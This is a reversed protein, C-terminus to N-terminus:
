SAPISRPRNSDGPMAASTIGEQGRYRQAFLSVRRFEEQLAAALAGPNKLTGQKAEVEVEKAHSGLGVFGLNLSSGKLTHAITLISRTDGKELSQELERLQGETISLYPQLIGEYFGGPSGDLLEKMEELRRVDVAMEESVAPDAPAPSVPAEAGAGSTQTWRSLVASLGQSTIPKSIYDDMGMALCHERDGELANATMAIIPIHGGRAQERERIRATAVFGDMGPMQCDMLVVEFASQELAQLVQFGDAAVVFTAGMRELMKRAVQQNVLNDEALLVHVPVALSPEHKHAPSAESVTHRTILAGREELRKRELVMALASALTEARVPKLLYADFGVADMRAAEGHQGSSSLMLLGLGALMADARLTEGVQEGDMDPLHYDVLAADFARGERVAVQVREVAEGGTSATEVRVGRQSLQKELIARNLANDDLVLVRAERLVSPPPLAAPRGEDVPLELSVTFTSGRGEESLLDLGGGMGAIIRRCLVLGLGTGGFKRSTSADAQSFPQFLRKQADQSIGPGTDTVSIQISVRGEARGGLRTTVLVHGSSTFKVANSVLNGVVQRLRGPDGMLRSPVDPDIDVLLEVRGGAVKPRNLEVVDFVESALDFPVSEFRLKGAEIKSLDLIDNLITLLSEGCRGITDVYDRQEPNLSTQQLLETVGLVGNMPTRIEHSMNALFESKARSAAEAEDRARQLEVKTQRDRRAYALRGNVAVILAAGGACLIAFLWVFERDFAAIEPLRAMVFIDIGEDPLPRSILAVPYPLEGVRVLRPFREDSWNRVSLPLFDRRAYRELRAKSSFRDIAAGPLSRMEFTADQALIVVGNPDAVFADAQKVLFSLNTINTKVVLAGAFRGDMFIPASFFLGPVGTKRGVAYQQGPRGAKAAVFYDRDALHLGVFSAPTNANSAAICVGSADLLWVVDAGLSQGARAFFSDIPELLSTKDRAEDMRSPPHAIAERVVSSEALITPIGRFYSLSRPVQHVIDDARHEARAIGQDVLTTLRSDFFVRTGIWAILMWIAIPLVQKRLVIRVTGFFGKSPARSHGKAGILSVRERPLSDPTSTM